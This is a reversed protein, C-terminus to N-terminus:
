RYRAREVLLSGNAALQMGALRASYAALTTINYLFIAPREAHFIQQAVRYNVVRADLKTAKLGNNLVFDVRPNSYGGYNRVGNTAFFQYILPSPEV